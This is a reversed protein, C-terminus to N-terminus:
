LLAKRIGASAFGAYQSVLFLLSFPGIESNVPILMAMTPEGTGRTHVCTSELRSEPSLCSFTHDVKPDIHQPERFESPLLTAPIAHVDACEGVPSWM